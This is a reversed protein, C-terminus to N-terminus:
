FAFWIVVAGTIAVVGVFVSWKEWFEPTRALRDWEWVVKYMLHAKRGFRRRAVISVVGMALWSLSVFIVPPVPADMGQGDADVDTRRV